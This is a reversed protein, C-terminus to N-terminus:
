CSTGLHSIWTSQVSNIM